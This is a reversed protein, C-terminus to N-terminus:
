GLFPSAYAVYRDSNRLLPFLISKTPASFAMPVGAPVADVMQFLTACHGACGTPLSFSEDRCLCHPWVGYLWRLRRIWVVRVRVYQTATGKSAVEQLCRTQLDVEALVSCLPVHYNARAARHATANRPSHHHRSGAM